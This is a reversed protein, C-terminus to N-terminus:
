TRFRHRSSSRTLIITQLRAAIAGPNPPV